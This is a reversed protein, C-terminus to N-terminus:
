TLSLIKGGGAGFNHIDAKLEGELCALQWRPSKVGSFDNSSFCSVCELKVKIVMLILFSKTASNAANVSIDFSM